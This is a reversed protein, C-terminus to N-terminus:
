RDEDNGVHPLLPRLKVAKTQSYLEEIIPVTYYLMFVGSDSSTKQAHDYVYLAM